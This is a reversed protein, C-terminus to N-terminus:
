AYNFYRLNLIFVLRLELPSICNVKIGHQGLEAALSKALGMIGYKTAAYYETLGGIATCASATFLICGKHRPVMLRAAHKAGLFSSVILTLYFWITLWGFGLISQVM